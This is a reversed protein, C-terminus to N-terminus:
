NMLLQVLLGKSCQHTYLAASYALIFQIVNEGPGTVTAQSNIRAEEPKPYQYHSPFSLTYDEAM